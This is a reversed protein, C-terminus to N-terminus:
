FLEEYKKLAESPNAKLYIGTTSIRSHGLLLQVQNIPIGSELCKKAFFHRLSHFHVEPKDIKARILVRKFATQLARQKVATKLPLYKMYKQKFHKALPVVRDKSGKGQRVLISKDKFNIDKKEVNIVESIRLGSEAALVYAVKHIEKKTHKILKIYEEETISIPLKTM